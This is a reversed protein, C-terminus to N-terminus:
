ARIDSTRRSSASSRTRTTTSRLTRGLVNPDGGFGRRWLGDSIVVVPSIGTQYDQPGFLRGIEPRAGLLSFYNIDALITEVREPRTTGTLNATIPWIAAVEDFVDSRERYDFLESASLGVDPVGLKEFDSTIRV